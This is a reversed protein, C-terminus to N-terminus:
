CRETYKNEEVDNCQDERKDVMAPKYKSSETCYVSTRWLLLLFTNNQKIKIMQKYQVPPWPFQVMELLKYSRNVTVYVPMRYLLSKLDNEPFVFLISTECKQKFIEQV